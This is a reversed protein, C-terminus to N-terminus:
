HDRSSLLSFHFSRKLGPPPPQLSSLSGSCVRRLDPTQSRVSWCPSIRDRSFICFNALCPPPHRYNWSNPLSLCSFPKFRPPPSQLSSLSYWKVGAQTFSCFEMRCPGTGSQLPPFALLSSLPQCSHDSPYSILWDRFWLPLTHTYLLSCAHLSSCFFTHNCTPPLFSTPRHDWSSLLSLCYFQKLGPPPPQLSSHDHWQVGAQALSCSVQGGLTTPSCTHIVTYNWKFSVRSVSLLIATPLAPPPSSHPTVSEPYLTENKCSPFPQRYDTMEASQSASAPSDCPLSNLVLRALMTLSLFVFILQAHHRVGTTGAVQSAPAPSDSSGSLNCCTLNTGSCELRPSLTLSWGAESGGQQEISSAPSWLVLQDELVFWPRPQVCPLPGPAFPTRHGEDFVTVDRTNTCSKGRKYEKHSGRKDLKYWLAKAKWTTVKSKLKSYFNRHDLPDLDLQRTLINFAQLTGKCTSAQVFNEFVQGAQAQKEDENEGM